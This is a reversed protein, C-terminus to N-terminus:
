KGSLSLKVVPLTRCASLLRAIDGLTVEPTRTDEVVLAFLNYVTTHLRGALDGGLRSPTDTDPGATELMAILEPIKTLLSTGGEESPEHHEGDGEGDGEGENEDDGGARKEGGEAEEGEGEEGDDPPPAKLRGTTFTSL